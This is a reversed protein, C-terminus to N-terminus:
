TADSHFRASLQQLPALASPLPLLSPNSSSSRCVLALKREGETKKKEREAGEWIKLPPTPSGLQSSCFFFQATLLCPSDQCTLLGSTVHHFLTQWEPQFVSGNHQRPCKASASSSTLHQFPVHEEERGGGKKDAINDDAATGRRIQLGAARDRGWTLNTM